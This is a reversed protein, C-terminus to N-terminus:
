FFTNYQYIEVFICIATITILGYFFFSDRSLVWKVLLLSQKFTLEYRLIIPHFIHTNEASELDFLMM